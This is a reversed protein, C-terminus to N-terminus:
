IWIIRQLDAWAGMVILEDFGSLKWPQAPPLSPPKHSIGQESNLIIKWTQHPANQCPQWDPTLPSEEEKCMPDTMSSSALAQVLM